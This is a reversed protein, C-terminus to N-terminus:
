NIFSECFYTSILKSQILLSHSPVDAKSAMHLDELLQKANPASYIYYLIDLDSSAPSPDLYDAYYMQSADNMVLFYPHYTSYELYDEQSNVGYAMDKLGLLLNVSETSSLVDMSLYDYYSEDEEINSVNHTKMYELLGSMPQTRALSHTNYFSEDFKLHSCKACNKINSFTNAEFLNKGKGFKSWCIAMENAITEYVFEEPVGNEFTKKLTMKGDDNIYNRFVLEHDDKIIRDNYFIILSPPCKENFLSFSGLKTIDKSEVFLACTKEKAQLKSWSSIPNLTIIALILFVIILFIYLLNEVGMARKGILTISAAKGKPRYISKNM